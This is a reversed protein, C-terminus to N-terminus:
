TGGIGADRAIAVAEARSSAPLKTLISSVLNRITKPSLYLQAAIAPNSRGSALLELVETERQTLQGFVPNHQRGVLGALRGAVQEGLIADGRAVTTISRMVQDHPAGKLIYGRAGARLAATVSVDDDFMTLVLVAIGPRAALLRRTAEIGSIDPLGIDMIVVDPEVEAALRVAEEGTGAEGVVDISPVEGFLMCLGARYVPHDDCVLVRIPDTM